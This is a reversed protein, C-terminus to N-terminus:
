QAELVTIKKVRFKHENEYRMDCINKRYNKM